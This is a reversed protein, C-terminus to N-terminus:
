ITPIPSLFVYYIKWQKFWPVEIEFFFKHMLLVSSLSCSYLNFLITSDTVSTQIKVLGQLYLVEGAVCLGYCCMSPFGDMWAGNNSNM